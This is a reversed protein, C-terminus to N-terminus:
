CKVRKPTKITTLDLIEEDVRRAHSDSRYGALMLVSFSVAVDLVNPDAVAADGVQRAEISSNEERIEDFIEDVVAAQLEDIAVVERSHRHQLSKVQRGILELFHRFISEVVEVIQDVEKDRVILKLCNGFLEQAM